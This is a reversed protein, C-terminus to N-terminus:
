ILPREKSLVMKQSMDKLDDLGIGQDTTGTTETVEGPTTLVV